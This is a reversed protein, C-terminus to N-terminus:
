KEIVEILMNSRSYLFACKKNNFAESNFKSICKYGLPELALITTEVNETLYGTHYYTIGKKVLSSVPSDGTAPEVLELCIDQGIKIFCVNVNQSSIYVTPSINEKGFITEYHLLEADISKVALGTHHFTLNLM